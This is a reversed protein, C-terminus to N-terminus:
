SVRILLGEAVANSNASLLQAPVGTSQQIRDVLQGTESGGGVLVIGDELIDSGLEPPTNQLTSKLEDIIQHIFKTWVWAFDHAPLILNGPLGSASNLGRVEIMAGDDHSAFTRSLKLKLERATLVGIRFRHRFLLHDILAQDLADGGGRASRAVCVGGLAIVAASTSGAGVDLVLRGRPGDIELGAGCAALLSNSLLTPTAFGADMVVTVLARREAQTADDPIGIAVKIGRKPKVGAHGCAARLLDAAAPLDSVVRNRIPQVTRVPRSVRGEHKAAATGAAIVQRNGDAVNVCCLSRETHIGNPTVVRTSQTGLDLGVDYRMPDAFVRWQTAIM